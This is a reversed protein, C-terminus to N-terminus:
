YGGVIKHGYNVKGRPFHMQAIKLNGPNRVEVKYGAPVDIQYTIKDAIKNWRMNVFGDPTPTRGECWDLSLSTLRVCVKKRVTDIHYLGLINRYLLAVIYSEFAHNMSAVSSMNEWLTGTLEAMYLYYEIM